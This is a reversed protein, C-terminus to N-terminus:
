HVRENEVLLVGRGKGYAMLLHTAVAALLLWSACFMYITGDAIQGARFLVIVVMANLPIRFLNMITSRYAEPIYHSRLRAILPYYMGVCLEFVLFGAVVAHQDSSVCPVALSLASVVFISRLLRETSQLQATDDAKSDDESSGGGGSRSQLMSVLSSGAMVCTMFCAFVMGHPVTGDDAATNGAAAQNPNILDDPSLEGVYRIEPSSQAAAQAVNAAATSVAAAAASTKAAAGHELTPTWVFTFTYMSGEFLSQMSGLLLMRQDNLLVRCAGMVLNTSSPAQQQHRAGADPTSPPTMPKALPGGDSDSVDVGYNETWTAAVTAAGVALTVMAMDFPTVLPAGLSHVVANGALSALIAVVGNLFAASSFVSALSSTHFGRRVHEHVLWSEFVSFLLSTACGGFVRGLALWAFSHSHKTFCSLTYVVSYAICLKKRGFRDALAGVFTGLVLSSAFGIIYLWAVAQKQFGYSEYLAYVYPGQVWDSALAFAYVILWNRHLMRMASSQASSKGQDLGSASQSSGVALSSLKRAISINFSAEQIMKLILASAALILFLVLWATGHTAM